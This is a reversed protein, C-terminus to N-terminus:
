ISGPNIGYEACLNKFEQSNIFGALVWKRSKGSNLHGVWDNYGGSDPERNFFVRYLITVYEGNSVNRQLFEESFVFGYAVKAGTKAGTKLQDAWENLGGADPSRGLCEQYLRATFAKVPDKYQQKGRSRSSGSSGSTKKSGSSSTSSSTQTTDDSQETEEPDTTELIASVTVVESENGATDKAQVHIYYTGDGDSQTATKTDSYDGTPVSDSQDDILYRFTAPEDADWTWTKADTPTTDDSLGTIEPATSDDPQEEVELDEELLTGDSGTLVDWLQRYTGDSKIVGYADTQWAFYFARTMGSAKIYDIMENLAEAQLEEDESYDALSTYSLSFETIYTGNEGFASILNGIETQWANNFNGNGGRYINSALIDISGKGEEIWTYITDHSCSYSVNGNTFIAQADTAIGKMLGPIDQWYVTVQDVHNEEENGLQFEYVGNDQAWQAADLIAQRFAPWNNENIEYGPNDGPNSSVGWIVKVGKAVARIVAEKSKSLESADQYSPIDIRLQTFGNALLIDVYNDFSSTSFIGMGLGPWKGNGLVEGKRVSDTEININSIPKSAGLSIFVILILIIAISVFIISHKLNKLM